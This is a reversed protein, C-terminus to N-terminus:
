RLPVVQTSLVPPGDLIRVTVERPRTLESYVTVTVLVVLVLVLPLLWRPRVAALLSV